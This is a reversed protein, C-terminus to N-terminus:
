NKRSRHRRLLQELFHIDQHDKDRGSARKNKLLQSANALPIQMGNIEVIRKSRFTQAFSIGSVGSLIDLRYPPRGLFLVERPSLRKPLSTALTEFGFDALVRKLRVINAQKNEIWIDIDQTSRAHGHLILAVGGVVLYKLRHSNALQIFENWDDTFLTRDM